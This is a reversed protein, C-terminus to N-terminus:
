LLSPVGLLSPEQARTRRSPHFTDAYDAIQAIFTPGRSKSARMPLAAGLVACLKDGTPIQLPFLSLIAGEGKGFFLM